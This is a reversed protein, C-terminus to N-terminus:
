VTEARVIDKLRFRRMGETECSAAELYSDDDDDVLRVLRPEVTESWVVQVERWYYDLRVTRGRCVAERITRETANM